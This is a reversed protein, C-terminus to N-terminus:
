NELPPFLLQQGAKLHKFNILKNVKAVELYYKAHGYIKHSLLPLTDGEKVLYVHTLDPSQKNEENKILQQDKFEIFTASIVARTPTGNPRFLKYQVDMSKLLCPFVFQGYILKIYPPKHMTGNFDYVLKKFKAIDRTIGISPIPPSTIFTGNRDFLFDFTMEQNESRAYILQRTSSGEPKEDKYEISFSQNYGEPNILVTMRGIEDTPNMKPKNFSRIQMKELLGSPTLM